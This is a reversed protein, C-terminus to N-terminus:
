IAFMFSEGESTVTIGASDAFNGNGALDIIANAVFDAAVAEGAAFLKRQTCNIQFSYSGNRLSAIVQWAGAQMGTMSSVLDFSVTKTVVTESFIVTGDLTQLDLEIRTVTPPISDPIITQAQFYDYCTNETFVTHNSVTRVGSANSIRLFLPNAKQLLDRNVASLSCNFSNASSVSGQGSLSVKFAQTSDSSNLVTIANCAVLSAMSLSEGPQLLVTVRLQLSSLDIM